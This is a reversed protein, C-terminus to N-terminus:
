SLFLDPEFPSISELLQESEHLLLADNLEGSRAILIAENNLVQATERRNLDSDQAMSRKHTQKCSMLGADYLDDTM